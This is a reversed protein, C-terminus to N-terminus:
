RSPGAVLAATGPEGHSQPQSPVFPTPENPAVRTDGERRVLEFVSVPAGAGPLAQEGLATYEFPTQSLERARASVLVQGRGAHAALRSATNVVEGLVTFDLRGSAKAGVSGSVLAGSDLGICVGHAYPAREGGRDALTGLQRRIALCAEQARDVHGPGRFVAMVADGVFKDVTGGRALVEPVIAEFNANLRRLSEAPAEQHLVPTFAHVDIFVVTGEVREGALADSGQLLPPLRELVGGPVFMRLLGNEETSRITSRLERV